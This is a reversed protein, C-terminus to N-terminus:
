VFNCEEGEGEGEGEKRVGKPLCAHCVQYCCRSLLQTAEDSKRCKNNNIVKRAIKTRLVFIALFTILLLLYFRAHAGYARVRV